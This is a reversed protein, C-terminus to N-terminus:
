PLPNNLTKNHTSSIYEQVNKTDIQLHHQPQHTHRPTTSTTTSHPNNKREPPLKKHASNSPSFPPKKISKHPMFNPASSNKKLHLHQINTGTIARM